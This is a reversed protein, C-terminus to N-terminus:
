ASLYWLFCRRVKSRLAKDADVVSFVDVVMPADLFPLFGLKAVDTIKLVHVCIMRIM